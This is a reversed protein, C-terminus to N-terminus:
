TAPQSLWAPFKALVGPFGSSKAVLTM